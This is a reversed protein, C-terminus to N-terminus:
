EEEEYDYELGCASYLLDKLSVEDMEPTKINEWQAIEVDDPSEGDYGAFPYEGYQQKYAIEKLCTNCVCSYMLKKVDLESNFTQSWGVSSIKTVRYKM